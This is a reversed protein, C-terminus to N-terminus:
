DKGKEGSSQEGGFLLGPETQRDAWFTTVTGDRVVFYVTSVTVAERGLKTGLFGGTQRIISYRLVETNVEGEVASRSSPEGLVAVVWKETTKGAQFQELTKDGITIGAGDPGACAALSALLASALRVRM